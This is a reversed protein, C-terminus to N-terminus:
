GGRPPTGRASASGPSPAAPGPPFRPVPVHADLRVALSSSAFARRGFTALACIWICECLLVWRAGKGEHTSLLLFTYCVLMPPVVWLPRAVRLVLWAAPFLLMFDYLHAYPSALLSGVLGAAYAIEIKGRHRFAAILTAAVAAALVAGRAWTSEFHRALTYSWAVWLEQPHSQAWALREAYARAGEVGIVALVIIGLAAMAILWGAFARKKGACLLAFPILQLGQPKLALVCLIAGAFFDRGQQLLVYSIAVLAMQLPIVQGEALGLKVPYPVFVMALLVARSPADGPALLHWCVLLSGLQIASWLLFGQDISLWTFPVMLMSLAPTYVNPLWFVDGLSKAIARQVDLDYLRNWGFRLGMLASACYRTYDVGLLEPLRMSFWDSITRAAPWGTAVLACALLVHRLRFPM